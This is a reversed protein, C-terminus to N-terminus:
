NLWRSISASVRQKKRVNWLDVVGFSRQHEDASHETEHFERSEKMLGKKDKKSQTDTGLLDTKM